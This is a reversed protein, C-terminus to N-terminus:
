SLWCSSCNFFFLFILMTFYFFIMAFCAKPLAPSSNEPNQTALEKEKEAQEQKLKQAAKEQELKAAELKRKEKEAEDLRLQESIPM